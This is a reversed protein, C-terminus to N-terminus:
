EEFAQPRSVRLEERGSDLIPKVNAVPEGQDIRAGLREGCGAVFPGVARGDGARTRGQDCDRVGSARAGDGLGHTLSERAFVIEDLSVAQPRDEIRWFDDALGFRRDGSPM